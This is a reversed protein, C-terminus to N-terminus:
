GLRCNIEKIEIKLITKRKDIRIEIKEMENWIKDFTRCLIQEIIWVEALVYLVSGHKKGLTEEQTKVGQGSENLNSQILFKM